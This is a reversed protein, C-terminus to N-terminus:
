IKVTKLINGFLGDRATADNWKEELQQIENQIDQMKTM